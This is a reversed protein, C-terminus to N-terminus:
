TKAYQQHEAQGRTVCLRFNYLFSMGNCSVGGISQGFLCTCLYSGPINTCESFSPCVALMLLCEDIDIISLSIYNYSCTYTLVLFTQM